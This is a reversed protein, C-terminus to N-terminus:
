DILDCLRRRLIEIQTSSQTLRQRQAEVVQAPARSVFGANGLQAAARSQEAETVEIERTLRAREVDLDLLGAVPLLAVVDGAVVTVVKADAQPEGEIIHLQDDAIRALSALEARAAKFAPSLEGAFVTAAIWKGPAVNAEARANRIARILDTLAGFGQEAEQDRAAAVPWEAVMISDGQHPLERWLAETIYPMFPHLLRLGGELTFAMTQAVVLQGPGPERLRVKAAEIYWDCLESWIFDRIHRGAESFQNNRLLETSEATVADLRSLIWRDVLTLDNTPRVNPAITSEPLADISRLAFRAANWLKNVFNRSQEVRELSLKMDNGASGQTILAFRVADAGYDNILMVPDLVNGKTKSMKVGEADRVMGHMYVTKFPAEEMIELGFFVMRAVWFFLIDYGTEMTTSPYFRELDVTQKPWGLTSFPWLGSSFWTDLVDPDQEVRGGCAPCAAVLEEATVTIESCVQCYWVPIRHGWWLQRSVCWDHINELWNLYVGTFRDPVFKIRGDTVAEIAPGALPRMEVFWQESAMPQVVTDCRQCHGVAHMHPATHVLFGEAELRQVIRERTEIITLGAFEGAEENMTGDFNIVLLLPLSHRKGIEFDNPDHAPTVKVAGTGFSTDVSDDAVVPLERGVLPLVVRKGVLDRYRDDVPHVALGTDGLMTEPRTTAVVIRAGEPAGLVPYAIHWLSSHEDRHIVELDSLATLCRPCWSIIREGRYIWGKDYLHKFVHRVASSPGPDMTFTFRSWDCSAGLLRLQERVRGRYREMFEWVRVLFAERGLDHRTLGEKALEREVVVQGAIGAHDAGPLWLTPDSLMRHWRVMVDEVSMTLAHGMHLEGTLNPPPMIMVFPARTPDGAPQFLGAADWADYMGTEILHPDYTKALGQKTSPEVLETTLTEDM